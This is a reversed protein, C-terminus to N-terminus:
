KKPRGVPMLYLASEKADMGIVKKVDDDYFAGVVVTGLNLATAQLFVNQAAHGVEMQVYRTSRTGYKVSTREIVASFVIVAPADGLSEQELAARGLEKRVDQGAVKVLEHVHPRYKYIGKALGTVNGAVIYIELPFLAGASPATRLGQTRETIGQAAWLLQSVEEITLPEGSYARVSRRKLLAEELSTTGRTNPKPLKITEMAVTQQPKNTDGQTGIAGSIALSVALSGIITNVVSMRAANM